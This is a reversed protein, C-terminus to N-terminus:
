DFSLVCFVSCLPSCSVPGDNVLAVEMHARFVGDKVREAEYNDKVKQVFYNYLNKADDGSMARSFSPKDKKTSAM